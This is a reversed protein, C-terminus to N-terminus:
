FGYRSLNGNATTPSAAPTNAGPLDETNTEMGARQLVKGFAKQAGPSVFSKANAATGM